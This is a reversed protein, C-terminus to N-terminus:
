IGFCIIKSKGELEAKFMPYLHQNPIGSDGSRDLQTGGDRVLRRKRWLIWAGLGILISMIGLAAGIGIGAKAGTSLRHPPAATAEDTAQFRVQISIANFWGSSITVPSTTVATFGSTSWLGITTGSFHSSCSFPIGGYTEVNGLDYGSNYKLTLRAFQLQNISKFLHVKSLM